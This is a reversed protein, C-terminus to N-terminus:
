PKERRPHYTSRVSDIEPQQSITATAIRPPMEGTPVRAIAPERGAFTTCTLSHRPIDTTDLHFIEVIEVLGKMIAVVIRALIIGVPLAYSLAEM